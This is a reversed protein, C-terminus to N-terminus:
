IKVLRVNDVFATNDGFGNYGGISLAYSTGAQVYATYTAYSQYTTSTPSIMQDIASTSGVLQVRLNQRGGHNARQAGYFSIYYYGSEPITFNAQIMYGNNQIFAVQSGEPTNPNGSTFANGNATIGAGNGFIFNSGLADQNYVYGNGIAPYEFTGPTFLQTNNSQFLQVNDVFATADFPVTGAIEVTYLHNTLLSIPSTEVTQYSSFAPTFSGVLNGSIKVQIAQTGPWNGRQAVQLSIKYEGNVPPVFNQTMSGQSQVFGVQTGEPPPPNGSTFGSNRESVGATGHYNWLTAVPNYVFTGPAIDPAEFGSNGLLSALLERAEVQELSPMFAKNQKKM